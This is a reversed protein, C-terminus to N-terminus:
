SIKGFYIQLLKLSFDFKDAMALPKKFKASGAFFIASPSKRLAPGKMCCTTAASPSANALPLTVRGADGNSIMVHRNLM